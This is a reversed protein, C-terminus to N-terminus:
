ANGTYSMLRLGEATERVVMCSQPVMGRERYIEGYDGDVNLTATMKIVGPELTEYEIKSYGDHPGGFGGFYLTYYTDTEVDYYDTGKTPDLNLHEALNLEQFDLYKMLVQRMEYGPVKYVQQSYDYFRDEPSDQWGYEFNYFFEYYIGLDWLEEVSEFYNGMFCIDFSELLNEYVSDDYVRIYSEREYEKKEAELQTVQASFGEESAINNEGRYLVNIAEEYKKQEKYLSALAYYPEEKEPWQEIMKEYKGVAQELEGAEVYNEARKLERQFRTMYFLIFVGVVVLLSFGLAKGARKGVIQTREETGKFEQRTGCNTCFASGDELQKGCKLCYM